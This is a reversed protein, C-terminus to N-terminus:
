KGMAPEAPQTTPTADAAPAEHAVAAPVPQTTPAANPTPETSAATNAAPANIPTSPQVVIVVEVPEEAVQPAVPKAKISLDAQQDMRMQPNTPQTSPAPKLTLEAAADRHPQGVLAKLDDAPATTPGAVVGNVAAGGVPADNTAPQTTSPETTAPAKNGEVSELQKSALLKREKALASEVTDAADRDVVVSMQGAYLKDLSQGLEVAQQRTLGRAVIVNETKSGALDYAPLAAAPTGTVQAGGGVNVQPRQSADVNQAQANLQQGAGNSVNTMAGNQTLANTQNPGSNQTLNSSGGGGSGGGNNVIANQGQEAPAGKSAYNQNASQTYQNYGNDAVKKNNYGNSSDNNV